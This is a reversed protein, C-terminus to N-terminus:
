KRELIALFFGDTKHIHPALQLWESKLACTEPVDGGVVDRWVLRYDVADWDGGNEALFSDVVAENEDPLVSCTMYILRGGPKVLEAGEKMLAYQLETLKTISQTDQRWRQDPSRRWTGTGSCPVDVYVRDCKSKLEALATDREPGDEALHRTQINRNGGREFRKKGEKLRKASTDLAFLQGKNKMLASVLLSKGGAGACLDAVQMGPKADVLSSALQAAEDQVEIKGERYLSVGGLPVNGDLRYCTSSFGTKEFGLSVKKIQDSLTASAKLPNGRIDLPATQNLAMAAASVENEFRTRFSEIAWDPLNAKALDPAADASVGGLFQREQDSLAEPAFPGEEGFLPIQEQDFLAFYVLVLARSTVECEGLGWILLERKRLIEYVWGSVARRDKSGAYRRERFYKNVLVDAPAGRQAIGEEVQGLLEILASIRASPRM